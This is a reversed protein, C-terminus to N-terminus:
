TLAMRILCLRKGNRLIAEVDARCLGSQRFLAVYYTEYGKTLGGTITHFIEQEDHCVELCGLM